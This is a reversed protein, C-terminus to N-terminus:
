GIAQLDLHLKQLSDIVMHCMASSNMYKIQWHLVAPKYPKYVIAAFRSAFWRSAARTASRSQCCEKGLKKFTLQPTNNGTVEMETLGVSTEWIKVTILKASWRLSTYCFLKMRKNMGAIGATAPSWYHDCTSFDGRIFTVSMTRHEYYGYCDWEHNETCSM